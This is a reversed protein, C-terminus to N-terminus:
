RRYDFLPDHVRERIDAREVAARVIYIDRVCDGLLRTEVLMLPRQLQKSADEELLIRADLENDPRQAYDSMNWNAWTTMQRRAALQYEPWDRGDATPFRPELNEANPLYEIADLIQQFLPHVAM